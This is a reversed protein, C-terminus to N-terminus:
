TIGVLSAPLSWSSFFLVAWLASSCRSEEQGKSGWWEAKKLDCLGDQPSNPLLTQFSPSIMKAWLSLFRIAYKWNSYWVWTVLNIWTWLKPPNDYPFISWNYIYPLFQMMKACRLVSHTGIQCFLRYVALAGQLTFALQRAFIWLIEVFDPEEQCWACRRPIGGVQTAVTRAWALLAHFSRSVTEKSIKSDCM